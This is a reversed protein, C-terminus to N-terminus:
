GWSPMWLRLRWAEYPITQGTWVPWFFASVLVVLALFTTVGILGIRRRAVSAGVGGLALALVFTLSLIMFPEFTITYFFFM